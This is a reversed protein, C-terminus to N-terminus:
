PLLRMVEVAEPGKAELVSIIVVQGAYKSAIAYSHVHRDTAQKSKHSIFMRSTLDHLMIVSPCISMIVLPFAYHEILPCTSWDSSM